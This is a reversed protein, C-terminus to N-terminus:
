VGRGSVFCSAGKNPKSLTEHASNLMANVIVPSPAHEGATMERLAHLVRGADRLAGAEHFERCKSGASIAYPVCRDTLKSYRQDMSAIRATLDVNGAKASLQMRQIEVRQEDLMTSLRQCETPLANDNACACLVLCLVIMSLRMM